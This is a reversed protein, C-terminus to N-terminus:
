LDLRLHLAHSTKRQLQSPFAGTSEDVERMARRPGGHLFAVVQHHRSLRENSVASLPRAPVICKHFLQRNDTSHGSELWQGPYRHNARSPM